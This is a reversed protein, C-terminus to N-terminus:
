HNYVALIQIGRGGLLNEAQGQQPLAADKPNWFALVNLTWKPFSHQWQLLNYLNDNTWDYYIIASLNDFLGLPYNASIATLTSPNEFAFAKEDYAIVLQEAIVNLGNGVGFTYDTGVNILHQSTLLGINRSNHVWTAEVWLGVGVDWKGDIGFRNEPSETWDPQGFNTIDAKRYHYTLGLEGNKAPFQFRGGFEPTGKVTATPDFGRANKNGYLGWVWINANNLFYYRGLVGYVGDTIQLPDRPDIQDFWMLPRLISAAGFNIKQLGLRWEMQKTSYRVWARYPRISGNTYTTDFPITAFNGTINASAELDLLRKEPLPKALSFTPIYRGGTWVKLTNDPNFLLFTSAQGKLETKVALSDSQATAFGTTLLITFFLINKITTMPLM